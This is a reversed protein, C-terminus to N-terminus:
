TCIGEFIIKKTKEPNYAINNERDWLKAEDAWTGNWLNYMLDMYEEAMVYREDHPVVDKLGFAQAASFDVILMTESTVNCSSKGRVGLLSSIGGSEGM